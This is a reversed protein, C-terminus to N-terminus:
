KGDNVGKEAEQSGLTYVGRKLKSIKKEAILKKISNHMTDLSMSSNDSVLLSHKIESTSINQNGKNTQNVLFDYVIKKNTDDRRGDQSLNNGYLGFKTKSEKFELWKNQNITYIYALSDDCEFYKNYLMCMYNVNYPSKALGIAYEFEQTVYRSGAICSMDIPKNNGKTNHHVVIITKKLSKIYKRFNQDFEQFVASREIEGVVMHSLSDIFVIEANSETIYNSLTQWDKETNIYELFDPPTSIFNEEFLELEKKNFDAIQDKNRRARIRYSEELSLYLVKTPPLDNQYNFFYNRGISFNLALNEAFTTKGTKAVGTILGTSAEPIGNWIIRPEPEKQVLDIIDKLKWLGKKSEQNKSLYKKINLVKILSIQNILVTLFEM